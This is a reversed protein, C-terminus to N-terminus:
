GEQGLSKNIIRRQIVSFVLIIVLLVYSIASALGRNYWDFGNNYILLGLTYTSYAPGGRTIIQMPIFVQLCNIGALIAILVISPALAPLTVNLFQRVAGAGDIQAAEYLQLPIAQLGALFLIIYYGIGQWICFVLLSWLALRSDTLWGPATKFLPLFINQNLFGFEKNYLQNWIMSVAVESTIVPLFYIVRYFSKFKLDQNLLLAFGLALTLGIGMYGITYLFTNGLAKWFLPTEMLKAYNAFGVFAAIGALDAEAFSLVLSYIIPFVWFVAFLIFFPLIFVYWNRGKYINLLMGRM